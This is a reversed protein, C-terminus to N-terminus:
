SDMHFQTIRYTLNRLPMLFHKLNHQKTTLSITSEHMEISVHRLFPNKDKNTYKDTAQFPKPSITSRATMSM